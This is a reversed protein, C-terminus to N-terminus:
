PVETPIGKIDGSEIRREIERARQVLSKPVRRSVRGLELAGDRLGLFTDRGTELQGGIFLQIPRYTLVDYRKVASTLVHDGLSSQDQDVGIAWIGHKKAVALTGLGCTGAVNFLVGAGKAVHAEAVRTCSEPDSFNNAYGNLTRIGPSALKAGTRFGAIFRDVVPVKFGGVSGVVDPGPRTREVLGALYGVVFGIEEDRVSFVGVNEPWSGGSSGGRADHLVYRTRPTSPAVVRVADVAEVPAIVLDYGSRALFALTSTYGRRIPHIVVRAEVGFDHVARRLGVDVQRAILRAPEPQEVIAIRYRKAAGADSGDGAVLAVGALM